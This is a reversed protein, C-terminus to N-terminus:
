FAIYKTFRWLLCYIKYLALAFLINTSTTYVRFRGYLSICCNSTWHDSTDSTIPDIQELNFRNM